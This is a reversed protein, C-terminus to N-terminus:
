CESMMKKLERNEGALQENLSHMRTCEGKYYTVRQLLGVM